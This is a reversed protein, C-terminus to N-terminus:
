AKHEVPRKKELQEGSMKIDATVSTSAKKSIILNKLVSIRLASSASPISPPKVKRKYRICESSRSVQTMKHISGIHIYIYQINQLCDSLFLYCILDQKGQLNYWYSSPDPLFFM